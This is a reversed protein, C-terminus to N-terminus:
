REFLRGSSRASNHNMSVPTADELATSSTTLWLRMFITVFIPLTPLVTWTDTAPDYEDFWNNTGSTHGLTIGCAMYIKGKYVVTGASGRRRAEPITAGETWEDAQPDYIQIRTMPPETPYNGTMAGVMYIKNDLVVPQFHHILPTTVNMKRWICTKPDFQDIKQSERGGILYFKGRCEVFATEHRGDPKGTCSLTTWQWQPDQLPSSFNAQLTDKGDVSADVTNISQAACMNSGVFFFVVLPLFIYQQCSLRMKISEKSSVNRNVSSTFVGLDVKDCLM